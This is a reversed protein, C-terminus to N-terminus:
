GSREERLKSAGVRVNSDPPKVKAFQKAEALITIMQRMGEALIGLLAQPPQLNEFIWAVERYLEFGRDFDNDEAYADHILVAPRELEL